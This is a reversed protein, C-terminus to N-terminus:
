PPPPTGGRPARAAARLLLIVVAVTVTALVLAAVRRRRYVAPDVRGALTAPQRGAPAVVTLHRVPRRHASGAPPYAIAAMARSRRDSLSARVGTRQGWGVVFM